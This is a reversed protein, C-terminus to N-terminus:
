LPSVDLGIEPALISVLKLVENDTETTCDKPFPTRGEEWTADPFELTVNVEGDVGKVFLVSGAGGAIQWSTRL